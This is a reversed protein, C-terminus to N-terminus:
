QTCLGGSKEAIVDPLVERLRSHLVKIICKYLVNYCTIPRFESVNSPCAIKIVLTLITANLESGHEFFKFCCQNGGRRRYFLHRPLLLCWSWRSRTIDSLIDFMAKKVESAAYPNDLLSIHEANSKQGM